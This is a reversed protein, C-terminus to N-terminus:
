HVRVDGRYWTENKANKLHDIAAMTPPFAQLILNNCVCLKMHKGVAHLVSPCVVTTSGIENSATVQFIYTQGATFNFVELSTQGLDTLNGNELELFNAAEDSVRYDM